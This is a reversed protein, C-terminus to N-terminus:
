TTQFRAHGINRNKNKYTNTVLNNTVFDFKKEWLSLIRWFSQTIYSYSWKNRQKLVRMSLIEKKICFGMIIANFGERYKLKCSM